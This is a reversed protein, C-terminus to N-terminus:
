FLKKLIRNAQDKAAETAAARGIRSMLDTEPADMPGYARFAVESLGDGRPKFAARLEKVPIKALLTDALALKLNYDITSQVLNVQGGGTLQLAKGKLSLTPTSLISRALTFDVRCEEFDPSALEPVNLARSLLALVKSDEIRCNAVQGFGRGTMTALPGTGQFSSEGRLTGGVRPPAQAERLMTQVDVGDVNLTSEFRFGDKLHVTVNGSASGGAVSGQIPSLTVTETSMELPASIDRIFLMDALSVTAISAQAEGRTVGGVVEVRSTFDADEVAMLRTETEEDVMTVVADHVAVENLVIDLGAGGSGGAEGSASAPSSAPPAAAPEAADAPKRTATDGGLAEYNYRGDEDVILGIVPKELSLEEVEVRGRLLPWLQYRLVFAEAAFLNGEFPKPNAVSVGRLTVGSLLAIDMEDLRVEAGMQRSVEARVQERFEPSNLKGVLHAAYGGVALIAVVVLVVLVLLIKKM